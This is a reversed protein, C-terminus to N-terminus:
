PSRCREPPRSRSRIRPRLLASFLQEKDAFNSYFAGRTFDAVECIEEVSAGAIGRAAFTTLAAAMLRERTQARRASVRTPAMVEDM